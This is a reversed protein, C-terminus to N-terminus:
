KSASTDVDAYLDWEGCAAGNVDRLPGRVFGDELLGVIQDLITAVEYRPDPDFAAGDTRITVTFQSM